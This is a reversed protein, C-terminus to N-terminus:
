MLCHQRGGIIATASTERKPIPILVANVWDRPVVKSERWVTHMLDLLLGLFDSNCSAAKIMEPLIGSQGPAKGSKLKAIAGILEDETPPRGYITETTTACDERDSKCGSPQPHQSGTHLTEAM